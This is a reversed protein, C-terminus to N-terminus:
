GLILSWEDSIDEVESASIATASGTVPIWATGDWVEGYSLDTNYRTAGVPYGTPQEAVSGHPIRLATTDAFKVLGNGTPVIQTQADTSINTFINNTITFNDKFQVVGAGNRRLELDSNTNFTRILNNNINIEDVTLNNITFTQNTITSQITGNVYMRITNDNAGPTLEASIGTNSDLDFLGYLSRTGGVVYGQFANNTPNFRIEGTTLLVRNSNSGVPLQLSETSQIKVSQGTYPTFIISRDAETGSTRINEITSNTIKIFEDILIGGASNARIELNSNSLTTTIYNDNILIDDVRFEPAILNNTVTLFGDVNLTPVVNLDALFSIGNVTLDQSFESNDDLLVIGTGQAVLELDSNSLTTSIFNTDILINDSIYQAGHLTNWRNADSGLNFNNTNPVLDTNFLSNFTITDISDSGLIVNQDLTVNSTVSVSDEVSVNSTIDLDNNAVELYLTGSNTRITNNEITINGTSVETADIYTVNTGDTITLNTGSVNFTNLYVKGTSQEIRLIDSIRFDGQHDVSQYYIKGNNYEVTENEQITATPDNNTDVGAGIYAFNHTILYMLTDQGSAVAGYTGYVNASGISRVEAGYKLTSGDATLRGTGRTAYLGINASYTFSNLWEVRVGNTMSLANIGPTIFTCSHFLMSAENTSPDAQSGDIYAGASMLNYLNASGSDYWTDTAYPDSVLARTSSIM